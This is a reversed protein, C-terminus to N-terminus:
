GSRGKGGGRGGEEVAGEWVVRFGGCIRASRQSGRTPVSTRPRPQLRTAQWRRPWMSIKEPLQGAVLSWQWIRPGSSNSGFCVINSSNAIKSTRTCRHRRIRHFATSLGWIRAWQATDCRKWLSFFFYCGLMSPLFAAEDILFSGLFLEWCGKSGRKSELEREMSSSIYDMSNQKKQTM